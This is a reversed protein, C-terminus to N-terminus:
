QEDEEPPGDDARLDIKEGSSVGVPANEEVTSQFEHDSAINQPMYSIPYVLTVYILLYAVALFMLLAAVSRSKFALSVLQTRMELEDAEIARKEDKAAEVFQWFSFAMGSVSVLMSVWFIIKTSRMHWDFIRYNEEITWQIYRQYHRETDARYEILDIDQAPPSPMARFIFEDISYLALIGIIVVAISMAVFAPNQNM